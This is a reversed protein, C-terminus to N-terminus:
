VTAAFALFAVYCLYSVLLFIGEGRTIRYGTWAIVLCALSAVIMVPVDFLMAQNNVQIGNGRSCCTAIGLVGLINFINSGVVNGVALDIKGRIAALVSVALEPLSTGVAILTLGVILEPIGLSQAVETAGQVLMDSGLVLLGTGVVVGLIDYVYQWASRPAAVLTEDERPLPTEAAANEAALNSVRTTVMESMERTISVNRDRHSIAEYVTWSIYAALGFVLVGGAMPRIQGVLDSSFIDTFYVANSGALAFLYVLISLLVMVPIEFRILRSTVWIPHIVATCGLILLINSTCSGVVNGIVFDPKGSFVAVVSVFLEPASTAMSVVTLGVVIPPIRLGLAIGSAGRVLTEGGGILLAFGGLILVTVGFPGLSLLFNIM